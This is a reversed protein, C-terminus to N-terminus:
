ALLPLLQKAFDASRDDGTVFEIGDSQTVGLGLEVARAIQEQEFVTGSRVEATTGFYRLIAVGVADLAVRDAGLLIVGPNVTTGNAPGGDTFAKMGDMLVLDPRYATNIEAIMRRQHPSGHLETMYDYGNGPVRKAALGVSNKLSLTFHGGYRHTKLCCTQVIGDATLVARPLAFGYAWHSGEPQLIQWDDAPLDEFVLTSIGLEDAMSFVGKSQMVARTIGMGSRDGITLRDAGMAQLNEILALLTEPDTSGPFPDASNFNPKIFLQKGDVPNDGWLNFAQRIAEIRDDSRVLVVRGTPDIDPTMTPEPSPTTSPVSQPTASNSVEPSPTMTTDLAMLAKRCGALAAGGALTLSAKLFSRRHPFRNIHRLNDM